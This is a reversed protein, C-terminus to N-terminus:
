RAIVSALAVEKPSNFVTMQPLLVLRSSSNSGRHLNGTSYMSTLTASGTARDRLGPRFPSFKCREVM